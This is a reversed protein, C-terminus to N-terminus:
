VRAPIQVRVSKGSCAAVVSLSYDREVNVVVKVTRPGKATSAPAPLDRLLLESLLGGVNEAVTAGEGEYL